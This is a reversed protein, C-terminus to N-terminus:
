LDEFADACEQALEALEKAVEKNMPVVDNYYEKGNKHSPFSIFPAKKGQIVFCKVSVLDAVILNIAGYTSSDADDSAWTGQAKFDGSEVEFLPTWKKTNKKAM